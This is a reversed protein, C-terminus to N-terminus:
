QRALCASAQANSARGSRMRGSNALVLTSAKGIGRSDCLTFTVNSGATAGGQPQFVVRTRGLSTRLHVGQALRPQARLLTDGADRARDADKDAFAIWGASWDIGGTCSLGDSSACLVVNERSLTSHNLALLLAETLVGRERAVHGAATAGSLTPVALAALLGLVALAILTEILTFGAPRTM